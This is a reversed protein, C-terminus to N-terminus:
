RVVELEAPSDVYDDAWVDEDIESFRVLLEGSNVKDVSNSSSTPDVLKAYDKDFVTLCAAMQAGGRKCDICKGVCGLAQTYKTYRDVVAPKDSKLGKQIISELTPVNTTVDDHVPANTMVGGVGYKETIHALLRAGPGNTTVPPASEEVAAPPRRNAKPPASALPAPTEPEVQVSAVPAAEPEPDQAQTAVSVIEAVAEPTSLLKALQTVVDPAAPDVSLMRAVAARDEASLAAITHEATPKKSDPKETPEKSKRRKVGTGSANIAEVQAIATKNLEPRVMKGLDEPAFGRTTLFQEIFARPFAPNRLDEITPVPAAAEEDASQAQPPEPQAPAQPPAQPPTPQPPASPPSTAQMKAMAPADGTVDVQRLFEGIASHVLTILLKWQSSM